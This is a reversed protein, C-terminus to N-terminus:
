YQNSALPWILVRDPLNNKHRIELYHFREMKKNKKKGASAIISIGNKIVHTAYNKLYKTVGNRIHNASIISKPKIIIPTEKRPNSVV